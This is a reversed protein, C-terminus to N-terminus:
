KGQRRWGDQWLLESLQSAFKNVWKHGILPMWHHCFEHCLYNLRRRQPIRPDLEVLPRDTPEGDEPWIEPDWYCGWAAGGKEHGLKRDRLEPLKLSAWRRIMITLRDGM